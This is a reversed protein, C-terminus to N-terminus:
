WWISAQMDLHPKFGADAVVAKVEPFSEKVQNYVSDFMVSDHVNVASVDTKLIFNNKVCTVYATYAFCKQHEGKYFEGCDPYTTRTKINKTAPPANDDDDDKDKLPKKGHEEWDHNVEEM